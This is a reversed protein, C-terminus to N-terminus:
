VGMAAKMALVTLLLGRGELVTVLALLCVMLVAMVAWGASGTRICSQFEFM